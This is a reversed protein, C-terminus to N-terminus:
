FWELIFDSFNWGDAIKRKAKSLFELADKHNDVIFSFENQRDLCFVWCNNNKDEYINPELIYGAEEYTM